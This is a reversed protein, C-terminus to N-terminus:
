WIKLDRTLWSLAKGSKERGAARSLGRFPSCGLNISSRGKSASRVRQRMQYGCMQFEAVILVIFGQFVLFEANPSLHLPPLLHWGQEAQIRFKMKKWAGSSLVEYISVDECQVLLLGLFCFLSPGWLHPTWGELQTDSDWGVRVLKPGRALVPNYHNLTIQRPTISCLSM